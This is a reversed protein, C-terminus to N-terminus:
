IRNLVHLYFVITCRRGLKVLPDNLDSQEVSTPMGTSPGGRQVDIVILPMEAMVAWGLAETKLSIGPGSSGTVAVRGGYSGGIAMSISAIEDECQVFLGGYGDCPMWAKNGLIVCRRRLM